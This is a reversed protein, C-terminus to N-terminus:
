LLSVVASGQCFKLVFHAISVVAIREPLSLLIDKWDETFSEEHLFHILNMIIGNTSPQHLPGNIIPPGACANPLSTRKIIFWQQHINISYNPSPTLKPRLRCLRAAYGHHYSCSHRFPVAM